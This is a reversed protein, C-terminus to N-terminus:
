NRTGFDKFRGRGRTVESRYVASIGSDLPSRIGRLLPPLPLQRNCNAREGNHEHDPEVTFPGTVRIRSKDIHPQDYLTEQDAYRAIVADIQENPMGERIEPNNAISKLMIHSVRGENGRAVFERVQYFM